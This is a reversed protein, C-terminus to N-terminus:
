EDTDTNYDVLQIIKRQLAKLNKPNKINRLESELYLIWHKLGDEITENSEITKLVNNASKWFDNKIHTIDDFNHSRKRKNLPTGSCSRSSSSCSPTPSRVDQRINKKINENNDTAKLIDQDLFQLDDNDENYCIENVFETDKPQIKSSTLSSEGKRQAIYPDLFSM